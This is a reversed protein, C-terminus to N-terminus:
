RRPSRRAAQEAAPRHHGSMAILEHSSECGSIPSAQVVETTPTLASMAVGGTVDRKVILALHRKLALVSFQANHVYEFQVICIARLRFRGPSSGDGSFQQLDRGGRPNFAVPPMTVFHCPGFRPAASCLFLELTVRSLDM